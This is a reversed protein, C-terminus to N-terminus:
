VGFSGSTEKRMLEKLEQGYTEKYRFAILYRELIDRSGLTTILADEDTGLGVTAERITEVYTDIELYYNPDGLVATHVSPPYLNISATSM